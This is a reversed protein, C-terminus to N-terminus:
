SRRGLVIAGLGAGVADAVADALEASRHPLGLQYLELAVGLGLSVGAATWALKSRSHGPRVHRLARYALLQMILFAIAHELKDIPFGTDVEPQPVHMGGGVFVLAAWVLAPLVRLAFDRSRSPPPNDRADPM